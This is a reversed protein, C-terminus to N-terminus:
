LSATSGVMRLALRAYEDAVEAISLRGDPRFWLFVHEVGTVLMSAALSVDPIEFEGTSVGHDLIGRILARHTREWNRIEEREEAELSSQLALYGFNIEEGRDMLQLTVFARVYAVLREAAPAQPDDAAALIEYSSRYLEALAAELLKLKSPFFWYLNAPTMGCEEAIRNVSTASFGQRQFLRTAVRLIADRRNESADGPPTARKAPTTSPPV